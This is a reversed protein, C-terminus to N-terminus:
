AVRRCVIAHPQGFAIGGSDFRVPAFVLGLIVLRGADDVGIGREAMTDALLACSLPTLAGVPPPDLVELRGDAHERIAFDVLDTMPWWGITTGV